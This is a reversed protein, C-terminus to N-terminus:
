AIAPRERESMVKLPVVPAVFAVNLPVPGAYVRVIFLTVELPSKVTATAFDPYLM